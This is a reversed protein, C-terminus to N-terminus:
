LQSKNIINIMGERGQLGGTHIALIKSNKKFYKKRMLDFIGYMMKATYIPDLLFGNKNEFKKIFVLLESNAKAYGGFHYDHNIKWNKFSKSSYKKLLIEVDANLFESGKLVSFGLVYTDAKLVSAIGALTGGTGCPVCIYDYHERVDAVIESAGKLALLNTGGEPILYFNGFKDKLEDIYKEENRKRYQDRSIYHIEMGNNKAFSLTPNIPFHEEGRIIGITKISFIKGAAATAYIHNSYAGGYTLISKYGDEIAKSFNYKLKHWKNGNITPHILDERKMFIKCPYAMSSTDTVSIIPAADLWISSSNITYNKDRM